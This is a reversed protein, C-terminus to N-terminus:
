VCLGVSGPIGLTIRRLNLINWCGANPDSNLSDQLPAILGATWNRNIYPVTTLRRLSCQCQSQRPNQNQSGSEAAWADADQFERIIEGIPACSNGKPM